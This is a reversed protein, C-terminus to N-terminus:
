LKMIQTLKSKERAKKISASHKSVLVELCDNLQVVQPLECLYSQGPEYMNNQCATAVCIMIGQLMEIVISQICLRRTIAVKSLITRQYACNGRFKMMAFRKAPFNCTDIKLFHELLYAFNCPPRLWGGLYYQNLM